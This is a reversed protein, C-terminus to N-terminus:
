ETPMKGFSAASEIKTGEPLVKSIEAVASAANEFSKPDSLNLPISITLRAVYADQRPKRTAKPAPTQTM